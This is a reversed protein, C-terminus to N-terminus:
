YQFETTRYVNGATLTLRYPSINSAAYDGFYYGLSTADGNLFKLPTWTGTVNGGGLTQNYM